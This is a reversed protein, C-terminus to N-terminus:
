KLKFSRLAVLFAEPDPSINQDEYAFFLTHKGTKKGTLIVKNIGGDTSSTGVIYDNLYRMGCIFNVGSWKAIISKAANAQPATKVEPGAFNSCRSSMNGISLGAGKATVPILHSVAFDPPISDIYITMFRNSAFRKTSQFIYHITPQQQSTQLQWYKPLKMTFYKENISITDESPDSVNTTVAKTDTAKFQERSIVYVGFAVLIIVLLTIAIVGKIHFSSKRRHQGINYRTAM